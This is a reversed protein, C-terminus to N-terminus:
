FRQFSGIRRGNSVAFLPAYVGINDAGNVFTILAVSFIGPHNPKLNEDHRVFLKKLGIAIPAIGLLRIWDHPLIRSGFFGILSILVLVTFGLYQGLVVRWPRRTQSFFITLFVIDDLNTASFAIVGTLLASVFWNM